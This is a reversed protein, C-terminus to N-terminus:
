SRADLELEPAPQPAGSALDVRSSTLQTGLAALGVILSEAEVKQQPSRFAYVPPSAQRVVNKYHASFADNLHTVNPQLVALLSRLRIFEHAKWGQVQGPPSVYLFHDMLCDAALSGATGLAAITPQPMNLNLGGEDPAQRVHVIRERYGPVDQQLNDRWSRAADLMSGLVKGLASWSRETSLPPIYHHVPANPKPMWVRDKVKDTHGPPFETLDIAFTPRMPLLADFFHLPFNSCLGGDSFLLRTAQRGNPPHEVSYDVIYLPITQLLIPFSLSMRVGLVVPLDRAEPLHILPTGRYFVNASGAPRSAAARDVLHAVVAEPFFRMLEKPDFYFERTRFPFAYPRGMNLATTMMQLDIKRSQAPEGAHAPSLGWLDGFTLVKEAPLGALQQYYGSLWSTLAEPGAGRHKTAPMGSCLGFYNAVLGDRATFLFRLLPLVIAFVIAVGICWGAAFGQVVAARRGLDFSVYLVALPVLGFALGALAWLAFNVNLGWIGRFVRSAPNTANLMSAVVGFHRKLPPVPQFLNFLTSGKAGRAPGSLLEPLQELANFSGPNEHQRGYEAAATAAAAIAGASTGGVNRFRYQRALTAVLKPYVVGSTIGGKMVIDCEHPVDPDVSPTTSTAV